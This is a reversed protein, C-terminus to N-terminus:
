ERNRFKVFHVTGSDATVTITYEEVFENYRAKIKHTGITLDLTNPVEIPNPSDDIYIITGTPLYVGDLKAGFRVQSRQVEAPPKTPPSVPTTASQTPLEAVPAVKEAILFSGTKSWPGGRSNQPGSRVRWFYRNAPLAQDLQHSGGQVEVSTPTTAFSKDTGYQLTFTDLTKGATDWGFEIQGDTVSENELPGLLSPPDAPLDVVVPEPPQIESDPLLKLIGYAGVLVVGVIAAMVPVWRRRRKVVPIEAVPPPTAAARDLTPAQREPIDNPTVETMSKAPEVVLTQDDGGVARARATMEFGELASRMETATAYRLGPDCAMAKLAVAELALPIAPNIQSPPKVNNRQKAACIEYVNDGKFPHEHTLLYYLTVGVAYLDCRIWDINETLNFQEPAMYRPSGLSTGSQTLEPDAEGKAVGFDIIKVQGHRDIMINTPKIDRHIIGKRHAFDLTALISRTIEVARPVDPPSDSKVLEELTPGEIHEMVIYFDGNHEFFHKIQCVGIHGDLQALKDAERKFRDALQPDTLKKLINKLNPVDRHSALFVSAMGGAGISRLIKYKGVFEDMM